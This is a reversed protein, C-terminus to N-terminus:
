RNCSWEALQQRERAKLEDAALRRMASLAGRHIGQVSSRSIGLSVGIEELTVGRAHNWLVWSQDQTLLPLLGRILEMAAEPGETGEAILALELPTRAREDAREVALSDGGGGTDDMSLMRREKKGKIRDDVERQLNYSFEITCFKAFSIGRSPDFKASIKDFRLVFHDAIAETAASDLCSDKAGAYMHLKRSLVNRATIMLLRYLEPTLTDGLDRTPVTDTQPQEM